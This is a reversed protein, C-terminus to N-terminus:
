SRVGSVMNCTVAEAEIVMGGYLMWSTTDTNGITTTNSGRGRADYGIVTENTDAAALASTNYGLFVSNEIDTLSSSKNNLYRGAFYGIAVNNAYDTGNAVGRLSQAGIAVTGTPDGSLCYYGIAVNSGETDIQNGSAVGVITNTSGTTIAAGANSGFVMNEHGETLAGGAGTGLLLNFYGKTTSTGAGQGIHTNYYGDNGASHTLGAPVASVGLFTNSDQDLIRDTKIDADIDLYGAGVDIVGNTGDHTMSIWDNVDAAANQIYLTPNSAAALGLDTAMDGADCIVMTRATEDLGVTLRGGLGTEQLHKIISTDTGDAYDTGVFTPESTTALDQPASLTVTGSGNTVTVRNATGTLTGLAATNGTTNGILLQGDTWSAAGTGGNAVPLPSTLGIAGAASLTVPAAASVAVTGSADPMTYVRAGTPSATITGTNGDSDLVVQNSNATLNISTQTRSEDTPVGELTFGCLVPLLLLLILKYYRNM